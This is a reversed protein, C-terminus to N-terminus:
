EAAFSKNGVIAINKIRSLKGEEVYFNIDVRNRELPVVEARVSATYKGQSLTITPLKGKLERLTM